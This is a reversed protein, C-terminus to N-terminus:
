PASIKLFHTFYTFNFTLFNCAQRRNSKWIKAFFRFPLSSVSILTSWSHDDQPRCFDGYLASIQYNVAFGSESFQVVVFRKPLFRSTHRKSHEEIGISTHLSVSQVVVTTEALVGIYISPHMHHPIITISVYAMNEEHFLTVVWMWVACILIVLRKHRCCFYLARGSSAKWHLVHLCRSLVM